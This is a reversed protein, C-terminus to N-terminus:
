NSRRILRFGREKSNVKVIAKVLVRVRFRKLILSNKVLGVGEVGV